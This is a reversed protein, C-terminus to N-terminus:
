REGIILPVELLCKHYPMGPNHGIHHEEGQLDGHDSTFITRDPHVLLPKVKRDMYEISRISRARAIDPARNDAGHNYEKFAEGVKSQDEGENYSYPGHTEVFLIAIFYDNFTQMIKLAESIQEDASYPEPYFRDRYKRPQMNKVWANANLFWSPVDEEHFVQKSLMVWSPKYIQGHSSIPLYGSLMSVMSPRTWSGHTYAKVAEGVKDLNPTHAEMYRDYRVSDFVLLLDRL